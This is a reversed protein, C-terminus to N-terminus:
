ISMLDTTAADPNAATGTDTPNATNTTPASLITPQSVNAQIQYRCIPCTKADHNNTLAHSFKCYICAKGLCIRPFGLCVEQFFNNHYRSGHNRTYSVRLFSYHKSQYVVLLETLKLKLQSVEETNNTIEATAVKSIVDQM